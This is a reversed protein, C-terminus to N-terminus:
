HSNPNQLLAQYAAREKLLQEKFEAKSIVNKEILLKALADAM